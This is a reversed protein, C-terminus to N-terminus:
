DQSIKKKKYIIELFEQKDRYVLDKCPPVEMGERM